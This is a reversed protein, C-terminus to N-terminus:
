KYVGAFSGVHKGLLSRAVIIVHDEKGLLGLAVAKKIATVLLFTLFVADKELLL